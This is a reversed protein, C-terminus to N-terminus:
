ASRRRRSAAESPLIAITPLPEPLDGRLFDDVAQAYAEFSGVRIRALAAMEAESLGEHQKLAEGPDAVLLRRFAEDVLARNILRHIGDIAM